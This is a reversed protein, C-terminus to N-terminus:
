SHENFDIAGYTQLQYALDAMRRNFELTTLSCGARKSRLFEMFWHLLTPTGYNPLQGMGANAVLMDHASM